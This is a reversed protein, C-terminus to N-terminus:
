PQIIPLLSKAPDSVWDLEFFVQIGTSGTSRYPSFAPPVYLYTMGQRKPIVANAVRVSVYNGRVFYCMLEPCYVRLDVTDSQNLVTIYTIQTLSSEVLMRFFAYSLSVGNQVYATTPSCVYVSNPAILGNNDDPTLLGAVSSTNTTHTTMGYPNTIGGLPLDDLRATLDAQTVLAQSPDEKGLAAPQVDYVLLLSDWLSASRFGMPLVDRYWQFVLKLVDWADQQGTPLPTFEAPLDSLKLFGSLDVNNSTTGDSTTTTRKPFYTTTFM